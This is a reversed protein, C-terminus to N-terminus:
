IDGRGVIKFNIKLIKLINIENEKFINNSDLIFGKYGELWEKLNLEKYYKHAVTFIIADFEQAKPLCKSYNLEQPVIEEVMPDHSKVSLGERIFMKALEISASYRIDGVQDRYTLGLILIKPSTRKNNLNKMTINFSHKPMNTNIEVAKESLPFEIKNNSFIQNSSVFGMLPDKTLCYGGVGLGPRNINSHTPRIKIAQIVEFLNVGIIEAFQGWEHIFAINTARYSNELVKSLESATTSSLQSLPYKNTNIITSLFEKCIHSSKSNVGAFVRWFNIISSLYEPGPMVREYSHALLPKFGKGFRKIFKEQLIPMIIRETTGPPVTTEVIVLTDKKIRSGITAIAKKFNSFQISSSKGNISVDLNIDIIVFDADEYEKPDESASFNGDSRVEKYAKELNKDNCSIPFVGNNIDNIKKLGEENPLDIGVVDYLPLFSDKDKANAVAVGMAFGVFGLGQICVKKRL